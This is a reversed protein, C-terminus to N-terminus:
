VLRDHPETTERDLEAHHHDPKLSDIRGILRESFPCIADYQIAPAAFLPIPLAATTPAALTAFKLCTMKFLPTCSETPPMAVALRM